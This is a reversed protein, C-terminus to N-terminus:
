ENEKIREKVKNYESALWDLYEQACERSCINKAFWNWGVTGKSKEVKCIICKQNM